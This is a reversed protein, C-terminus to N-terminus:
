HSDRRRIHLVNRHLVNRATSGADAAKKFMAFGAADNRNVGGEPSGVQMQGLRVMARTSGATAAQELLAKAKVFDPKKDGQDSQLAIGQRYLGEADTARAVAAFSVVLVCAAIAQRIKLMTRFRYQWVGHRCLM